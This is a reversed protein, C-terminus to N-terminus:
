KGWGPLRSAQRVRIAHVLTPVDSKWERLMVSIALGEVDAMIGVYIALSVFVGSSGFVLISFFGAFLAIGWLKSSWMHYSAERGFKALDFAYRALELVALVGLAVLHDRIVAPHLHWVAYLAAVYFVSDAASDLRRLAPTAVGLRRAIIGDFVDSLFAAVLCAGFAAALPQYLALLVLVPALAIRLVTLLLPVRRM